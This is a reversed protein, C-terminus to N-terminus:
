RQAFKRVREDGNRVEWALEGPEILGLYRAQAHAVECFYEVPTDLTGHESWSKAPCQECLGKIFCRACRDLYDPNETLMEKIRPFFITLADRLSCKRIDECLEPMRLLLCPQIIGYANICVHNGAGCSFLVPGSSGM